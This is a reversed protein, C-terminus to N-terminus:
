LLRSTLILQGERSRYIVKVDEETKAAELAGEKLKQVFKETMMTSMLHLAEVLSNKKYDENNTDSLYDALASRLPLSPQIDTVVFVFSCFRRLITLSGGQM